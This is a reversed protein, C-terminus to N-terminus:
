ETQTCPIQPNQVDPVKFMNASAREIGFGISHSFTLDSRGAVM